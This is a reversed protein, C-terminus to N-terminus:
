CHMWMCLMSLMEVLFTRLGLWFIQEPKIFLSTYAHENVGSFDDTRLWACRWLVRSALCTAYIGTYATHLTSSYSSEVVGIAAGCMQETVKRVETTRITM